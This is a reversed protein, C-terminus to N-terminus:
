YLCIRGGASVTLTYQTADSETTPTQIVSPPASDDDGSSCSYIFISLLTVLTIHLLARKMKSYNIYHRYCTCGTGDTLQVKNEVIM